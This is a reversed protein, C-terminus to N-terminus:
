RKPKPAPPTPTAPTPRPAPPTPTAPTPRPEPPTPTPPMPHDVSPPTPVTAARTVPARRYTATTFSPVPLVGTNAAADQARQRAILDVWGPRRIPVEVNGADGKCTCLPADCIICRATTPQFTIAFRM